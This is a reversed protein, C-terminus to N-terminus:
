KWFQIINPLKQFSVAIISVPKPVFQVIKVKEEEKEKARWGLVSGRESDLLPEPMAPELKRNISVSFSNEWQIVVGM